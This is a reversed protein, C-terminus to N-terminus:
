SLDMPFHSIDSCQTRIPPYFLGSIEGVSLNRVKENLQDLEKINSYATHTIKFNFHKVLIEIYKCSHASGTYTIANTIYKKDLFRRLFFFDMFKSYYSLLLQFMLKNSNHIQTIMNNTSIASLGYVYLFFDNPDRNLTNMKEEFISSIHSIEEINKDCGKILDVLNDDMEKIQHRIKEKVNNNQYVNCLKNIIYNIGPNHNIVPNQTNNESITKDSKITTDKESESTLYKIIQIKKTQTSDNLYKLSYINSKIIEHLNELHKKILTLYKQCNSFINLDLSKIYRIEHDIMDLYGIIVNFNFTHRIDMYHLRINKFYKSVSVKNEKPDYVFLHRFLKDVQDIYRLRRNIVSSYSLGYGFNQLDVSDIEFFFDYSKNTNSNSLHDFSDAFYNQVDKSYINDCETQNSIKFHMDMFIYIVKDVDNVKGELRVVNIPGNIKKINKDFINM